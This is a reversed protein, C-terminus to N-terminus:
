NIKRLVNWFSAYSHIHTCSLSLPPFLCFSKWRYIQLYLRCSPFIHLEQPSIHSSFFLPVGPSPILPQRHTLLLSAHIAANLPSLQLPLCLDTPTHPAPMHHTMGLDSRILTNQSVPHSCLSTLARRGAVCPAWQWIQVTFWCASLSPYGILCKWGGGGWRGKWGSVERM